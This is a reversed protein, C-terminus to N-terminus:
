YCIILILLNVNELKLKLKLVGFGDFKVGMELLVNVPSDFSQSM